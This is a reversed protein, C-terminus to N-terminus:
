KVILFRKLIYNYLLYSLLLSAGWVIVYLGGCPNGDELLGRGTWLPFNFCYSSPIIIVLTYSMILTLILLFIIEIFTHKKDEM